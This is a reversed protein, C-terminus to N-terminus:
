LGLISPKHVRALPFAGMLRSGYSLKTIFSSRAIITEPDCRPGAREIKALVNKFVGNNREVRGSKYSSRAPRKIVKLEHKEMFERLKPRCFEYDASFYKSAGNSYFSSKEFLNKIVDGLRSTVIVREGYKTGTDVIYPVEQKRGQICTYMCDARVEDNFATSIHTMSVKGSKAPRRGSARIPCADYVKDCAEIMEKSLDGASRLLNKMEDSSAHTQRHIKKVVNLETRKVVNARLSKMTSKNHPVLDIRRRSKKSTDEAIYKYFVLENVDNPRRFNITTLKRMNCTDALQKLDMGVILPSKGDVIDATFKALDGRIDPIPVKWCYRNRKATACDEGWSHDYVSRPPEPQARNRTCRMTASRRRSCQLHLANKMSLQAPDINQKQNVRAVFFRCIIM